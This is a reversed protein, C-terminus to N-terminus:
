FVDVLKELHAFRAKKRDTNSENYIDMTTTIDAHGMIEQILKLDTENECLRTCFTHRLQHVSFHPLILPNRGACIANKAEDRNYNEIIREIARNVSHPSMVDGFRTQWIFGSYGDVMAKCLETESQKMFEAKFAERVSKFMPIERIGSKTKPTTIHFEMHGSDQQRYILTHNISIINEAWDIDEWRLGLMEGIRCGTGLLCTFLPYWHVFIDSKEVYAMFAKQQDTTLAHRKPKEWDNSRKIDAMIGDMPNLRIHGDRVAIRFVPHLITHMIEVSNPKFGIDHILHNFFKKVMSYKISALRNKGLDGRVYNDYMYRYNTRTSQKLEPKNEIYDNWFENLTIKEQTQIGDEVDRQIKREMERLSECQRKGNPLPDIETLKWSYVTRRDGNADIYKYEYRGDQRQSENDRLLRGKNDKRKVAMAKKREAVVILSDDDTNYWVM